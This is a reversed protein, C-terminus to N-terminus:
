ILSEGRGTNCSFCVIWLNWLIYWYWYSVSMDTFNRYSPPTSSRLLPPLVLASRLRLVLFNLISMCFEWWQLFSCELTCVPWWLKTDGLCLTSTHHFPPATTIMLSAARRMKFHLLYINVIFCFADCVIKPDNNGKAGYFDNDCATSCFPAPWGRGLDVQDWGVQDWASKTGLGVWDLLLDTELWSPGLVFSCTCYNDDHAMMCKQLMKRAM